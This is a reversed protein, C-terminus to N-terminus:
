PRIGGVAVNVGVFTNFGRSKYLHTALTKLARHFFDDYLLNKHGKRNQAKNNKKKRKKKKKNKRVRYGWPPKPGCSFREL